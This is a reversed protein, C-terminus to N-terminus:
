PIHPAADAKLLAVDSNACLPLKTEPFENQYTLEIAVNTITEINVQDAAPSIDGIIFQVASM